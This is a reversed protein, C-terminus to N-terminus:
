AGMERLQEPSLSEYYRVVAAGRPTVASFDAKVLEMTQLQRPKPGRRDKEGAAKRALYHVAAWSLENFDKEAKSQKRAV